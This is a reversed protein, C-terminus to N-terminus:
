GGPWQPDTYGEAKDRRLGINPRLAGNISAKAHPPAAIM